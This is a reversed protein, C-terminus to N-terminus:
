QDRIELPHDKLFDLMVGVGASGGKAVAELIEHLEHTRYVGGISKELFNKLLGENESCSLTGILLSREADSKSAELKDLFVNYVEVTSNKLGICFIVHQLDPHIKLKGELYNNFQV